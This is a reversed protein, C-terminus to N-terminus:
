LATPTLPKDDGQTRKGIESSLSLRMNRRETEAYVPESPMGESARAFKLAKEPTPAEVEAVSVVTETKYIKVMSLPYIIPSIARRYRRVTYGPTSDHRQEDAVLAELTCPSLGNVM